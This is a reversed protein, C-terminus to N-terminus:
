SHHRRARLDRFTYTVTGIGFVLAGICLTLLIVLIVRQPQSHREDGAPMRALADGAVNHVASDNQDADRVQAGVDGPDRGLVALTAIVVLLIALWGNLRRM